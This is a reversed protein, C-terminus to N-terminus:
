GFEKGVIFFTIVEVDLLVLVDEDVCNVLSIIKPNDATMRAGIMSRQRDGGRAKWEFSFDWRKM